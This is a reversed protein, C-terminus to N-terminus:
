RPIGKAWKRSISRATCLNSTVHLEPISNWVRAMINSALNPYGPVPPRIDKSTESRTSRLNPSDKFLIQGLPNMSQKAKWVTIAMISAVAENLCKLNARHLIDESRVKDSLRTKMIIRATSKICKNIEETIVINSRDSSNLRVPITVSCTSLIKGMLLGNAFTSLVSPPMSYSLRSILASRTKAARALNHLFPTTTFNSDFDVGLLNIVSTAPIISSGM